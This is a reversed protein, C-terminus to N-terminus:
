DIGIWFVHSRQVIKNTLCFLFLSFCAGSFFPHGVYAYIVNSNLLKWFVKLLDVIKPPNEQGITKEYIATPFIKNYFFFGMWSEMEIIAAPLVFLKDTLHEPFNMESCM